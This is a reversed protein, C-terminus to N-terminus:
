ERTRSFSEPSARIPLWGKPISGPTVVCTACSIPSIRDSPTCVAITIPPPLM